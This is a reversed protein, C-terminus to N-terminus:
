KKISREYEEYTTPSAIDFFINKNEKGFLKSINMSMVGMVKANILSSSGASIIVSNKSFFVEAPLKTFIVCDKLEKESTYYNVDQVPHPKIYFEYGNRESIRKLNVLVEIEVSPEVGMGIDILNSLYFIYKSKININVDSDNIINDLLEIDLPSMKKVPVNKFVSLEPFSALAHSYLRSQGYNATHNIYKFGGAKVVISKVIDQWKPRATYYAAFGEDVIIVNSLPNKEKLMGVLIEIPKELDSFFYLNDYGSLEEVLPKYAKKKDNYYRRFKKFKWISVDDSRSERMVKTFYRELVPYTQGEQFQKTNINILNYTVLINQIDPQNYHTFVINASRLIHYPRHCIFINKM